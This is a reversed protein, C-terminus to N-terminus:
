VVRIYYDSPLKKEFNRRVGRFNIQTHLSYEGLISINQDVFVDNYSINLLLSSQEIIIMIMIM